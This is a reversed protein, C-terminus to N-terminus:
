RQKGKLGFLIILGLIIMPLSLAQGMSFWGFALYGIHSDPERVFEVLFRFLGYLLLFAGSISARSRPQSSFWWLVAFLVLGELLAEYLQSPHRTISGASPDPFVMAWPLNSPAGWLEGNIFNAIRGCFLGVPVVPAIFDTVAFFPKQQKRAYLWAALLVGILGGHFAMGGQQLYFIEVPNALYYGPYYFLVSGLRGGVIIGLMCYFVLDGVQEQSYNWYSLKARQKLLQWAGLIGAVYSLGYWRIQLFGLDLAVPDIAPYNLMHAITVHCYAAIVIALPYIFHELESM